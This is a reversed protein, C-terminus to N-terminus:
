ADAAGLGVQDRLAQLKTLAETDGARALQELECMESNSM